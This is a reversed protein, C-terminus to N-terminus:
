AALSAPPKKDQAGTDNAAENRRKMVPAFSGMQATIPDAADARRFGIDRLLHEDMHLFMNRARREVSARWKSAIYRGATEALGVFEVM